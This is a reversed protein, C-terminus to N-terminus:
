ENKRLLVLDVYSRLEPLHNIGKLMFLDVLYKTTDPFDTIICSCKPLNTVQIPSVSFSSVDVPCTRANSILADSVLLGSRCYSQVYIFCNKNSLCKEFSNQKGESAEVTNIM